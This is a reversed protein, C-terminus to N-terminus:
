FIQLPPPARAGACGRGGPDATPGRGLPSAVRWCLYAPVQKTKIKGAAITVTRMFNSCMSMSTSITTWCQGEHFLHHTQSKAAENAIGFYNVRFLVQVPVPQRAHHPLAFNESFDFTLHTLQDPTDRAQQIVVNYFQRLTACADLKDVESMATRTNHRMVECNACVDQRPRMFKM